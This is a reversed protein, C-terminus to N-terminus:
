CVGNPKQATGSEQTPSPQSNPVTYATFGAQNDAWEQIDPALPHGAVASEPHVTPCRNM